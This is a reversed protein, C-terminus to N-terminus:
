TKNISVRMLSTLQQCVSLATVKTPTDTACVCCVQSCSLVVVDSRLLLGRHGYNFTVASDTMDAAHVVALYVDHISTPVFESGNRRQNEEYIVGLLLLVCMQTINHM